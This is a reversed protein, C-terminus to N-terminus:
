RACPPALRPYTGAHSAVRQADDVLKVLSWGKRPNVPAYWYGVRGAEAARQSTEDAPWRVPESDDGSLGDHIRVPFGKPVRVFVQMSAGGEIHTDFEGYTALVLTTGDDTTALGLNRRVSLM